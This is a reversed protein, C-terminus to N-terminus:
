SIMAVEVMFIVVGVICLVGATLMLLGLMLSAFVFAIHDEPDTIRMLVRFIAAIVVYVVTFVAYFVNHTAIFTQALDLVKYASWCFGLVVLWYIPPKPKRRRTRLRLRVLSPALQAM